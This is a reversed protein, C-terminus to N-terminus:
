TKSGASRPGPGGAATDPSSLPHCAPGDGTHLATPGASCSTVLSTRSVNRARWWGYQADLIRRPGWGARGQQGDAGEGEGGERVQCVECDRGRVKDAQVIHQAGSTAAQNKVLVVPEFGESTHEVVVGIPMRVGHIVRERGPRHTDALYLDDDIGGDAADGQVLYGRKQSYSSTCLHLYQIESKAGIYENMQTLLALTISQIAPDRPKSNASKLDSREVGQYVCTLLCTILSPRCIVHTFLPEVITSLPLSLYVVILVPDVLTSVVTDVLPNFATFKSM